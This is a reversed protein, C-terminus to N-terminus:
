VHREIKAVHNREDVGGSLSFIICPLFTLLDYFLWGISTKEIIMSISSRSKFCLIRIQAQQKWGIVEVFQEGPM